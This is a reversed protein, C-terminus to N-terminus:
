TLKVKPCTNALLAAVLELFEVDQEKWPNRQNSDIDIVGIIKDKNMIPVVIESKVALDCAIYRRERSVDEVIITKKETAADGCIGKDLPIKSHETPKGLYTELVLTDGKLLYIGVWEYRSNASKIEYVVESLLLRWASTGSLTEKIRDFAKQYKSNMEM